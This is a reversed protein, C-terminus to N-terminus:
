RKRSRDVTFVHMEGDYHRVSREHEAAGDLAAHVHFARDVGCLIQHAEGGGVTRLVFPDVVETWVGAQGSRGSKFASRGLRRAGWSRQPGGDPGTTPFAFAASVLAAKTEQLAM